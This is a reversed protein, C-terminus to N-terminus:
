YTKDYNFDEMIMQLPNMVKFTLEIEQASKLLKDDTTLFVDANGKDALALHLADFPKISRNEFNKAKKIVNNDLKIFSQNITQLKMVAERKDDLPIKSIEYMIIESSIFIWEGSECKELIIKVAEAELGIRPQEIDDFPRNLCCVDFYIRKLKSM